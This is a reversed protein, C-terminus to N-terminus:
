WASYNTQVVTVHLTIQKFRFIMSLLKNSGFYWASYSTQVVTVHQTVQKFWLLMCLLKNSGFYWASYNTQVVTVHLTIQKFWLEHQTIQKFWLLMCLLKNSTDHQTIQKFWLLMCLLKNSGSYWASYSTQVVTVLLTIQKFRLLMSLLKNSGCYCASYNAQVATVHSAILKFQLLMTMLFSLQFATVNHKQWSFISCLFLSIIWIFFWNSIWHAPILHNVYHEPKQKKLELTESITEHNLYQNQPKINKVIKHLTHQIIWTEPITGPNLLTELKM